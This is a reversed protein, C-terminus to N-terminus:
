KIIPNTKFIKDNLPKAAYKKIVKLVSTSCIEKIDKIISDDTHENGVYTKQHKRDFAIFYAIQILM